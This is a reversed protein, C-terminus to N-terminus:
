SVVIDMTASYNGQAVYPPIALTLAADCNTGGGGGGPAASCLTAATTTSLTAIPGATIESIVDSPGCVSVTGVTVCTSPYTTSVAPAWILNSAPITHDNGTAPGNFDSEMQGTVTWGVLDGRNDSVEITNLNGTSAAFQQNNCPGPPATAKCNAGSAPAATAGTPTVNDGLTVGSLVVHANDPNVGGTANPKSNLVDFITLDTGSITTGIVQKVTCSTASSGGATGAPGISCLTPLNTVTFAASASLTSGDAATQTCNIPNSGVADNSTVNISGSVDGSANPTGLNATDPPTGTSFTCTVAGGQPDWNTGSLNTTSPASGTNPTATMTPAGFVTFTANGNVTLPNPTSTTSTNYPANGGPGTPQANPEAVTVTAPGAPTTGPITVSGSLSGPDLTGGNNSGNETYCSQTITASSTAAPTGNVLVTPAPITGSPLVSSSNCAPPSTTVNPSGYESGWFGSGTFTTSDGAAGQTTNLTVSPSSPTAQGSSFNLLAVGYQNGSTDAVAVACNTFGAQVEAATPPCTANPDTGHGAATAFSASLNGSADSTVFTPGVVLMAEQAGLSPNTLFGALPSAEALVYSSSAALGTCSITITEPNGTVVTQSPQGNFTCTAAAFAPTQSLGVFAALFSGALAFSGVLSLLRRPILKRL